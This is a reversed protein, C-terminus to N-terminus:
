GEGELGCRKALSPLYVNIEQEVLELKARIMDAGHSFAHDGGYYPDLRMDAEMVPLADRANAQEDLLVERWRRYRERAQELAEPTKEPQGAFALLADRLLCSEYFNAETRATHYFWRVPSNEADFMLRCREPVLPAAATMAGTAQRLLEEMQRYFKAFVPVNGTPSRVFVPQLKLGEADAIEAHFLYRGYFVPPLEAEPNACMPQAPGLYYPGTYYSPLEPSYAIAQSVFNWANRVLPGADSGFLRAAFRQLLEEKDSVPTWWFFKCVEAASTGYCPRFAPFVWAGDAGCSALAESREAWRDMCPIHPLGPAEFALEPESKMYIAIGAAKCAEVQRKAREGPGILDISYDWLHKNVGDAKQVYEDKEIETFIACGPKMRAIVGAQARDASWVHEASYPWAVVEANPNLGRAADLLLNCLNSVVTDPGLAECRACNTHGKGVGFPRMFCHYFGEGGIIMVIGNLAPDARFIGAVSESLFQKVLPHETCLVYEGDAKWTLSGRIDPHAAFVPDDKAFKLRTDVFAYTKLGHRRAEAASKVNSELLGPVRRSALEPIADSVSLAHLNGSGAFVANYGLFVLERCGGGSPIAGLRVRLRPEYHQEGAALFPAQRFGLLDVLKVVGDRLGAPDCAAIRVEAGLTRVTFSEPKSGAPQGGADLLVLARECPKDLAGRPAREIPISVNMRRALFDALYGSMLEALPSADDPLLLRWTDDITIENPGAMAAPDRSFRAFYDRSLESYPSADYAAGTEAAFRSSFEALTEAAGAPAYASGILVAAFSIAVGALERM